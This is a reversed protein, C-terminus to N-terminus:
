SKSVFFKLDLQDVNWPFVQLNLLIKKKAELNNKPVELYCMTKFAYITNNESELCMKTQINKELPIELPRKSYRSSFDM